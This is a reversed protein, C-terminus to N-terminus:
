TKKVFQSNHITSSHICPHMYTKSNYIKGNIGLFLISSDYPLRIKLNKLFKWVTKWLQVLKCEQWCHLFNGKEGCWRWCNKGSWINKLTMFFHSSVFLLDYQINSIIVLKVGKIYYNKLAAIVLDLLSSPIFRFKNDRLDLLQFNFFLTNDSSSERSAPRDAKYIDVM